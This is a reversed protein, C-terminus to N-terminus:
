GCRLVRAGWFRVGSWVSISFHPTALVMQRMMWQKGDVLQFSMLCRFSGQSELAIELPAWQGAEVERWSRFAIEITGGEKTHLTEALPIKREADIYFTEKEPTIQLGYPAGTMGMLRGIYLQSRPLGSVEAVHCLRDGREADGKREVRALKWNDRLTFIPLSFPSGILAYRRLMEASSPHWPGGNGGKKAAFEEGRMSIYYDGNPLAIRRRGAVEPANGRGDRTLEIVANGESNTYCTEDVDGSTNRHTYQLSQIGDALKREMWPKNHALMDELTGLIKQPNPPEAAGLKGTALLILLMVKKFM